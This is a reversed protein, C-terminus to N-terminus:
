LGETDTTFLEFAPLIGLIVALRRAIRPYRILDTLM